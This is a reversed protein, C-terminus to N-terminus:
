VALTPYLTHATHALCTSLQTHIQPIRWTGLELGMVELSVGLVWPSHEKLFIQLLDQWWKSPGIALLSLPGLHRCPPM